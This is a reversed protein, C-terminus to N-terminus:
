IKNKTFQEFSLVRLDIKKSESIYDIFKFGCPLIIEPEKGGWYIYSTGKPIIAKFIDADGRKFVNATLASTSVSTYAPDAKTIASPTVSRYVTIDKELSNKTLASNLDDIIKQWKAPIKGGKRLLTNIKEFYSSKYYEFSEYENETYDKKDKSIDVLGVTDAVSITDKEVKKVLTEQSKRALKKLEDEKVRYYYEDNPTM